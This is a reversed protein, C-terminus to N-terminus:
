FGKKTAIILLEYNKRKSVHPMHVYEMAQGSVNRKPDVAQVLAMLEDLSIVKDNYSLVWVPIHQSVDLLSTIADVSKTFPSPPLPTMHQGFLVSDLINLEKAYGVTNAYPPDFYAIDATVSPTLELVDKQYTQVTGLAPFVGGNIEEILKAADVLTPKLLRQFSGDKLRKQPLKHYEGSDLVQACGRNSTGISTGYAVYRSTLKWLLLRQLAQQVPCHTENIVGLLCDMTQAHRMSFVSNTLNGEVFGPCDKKLIALRQLKELQLKQNNNKILGELVIQGRDSIDNSIVSFGHMKAYLSVSGGGSFADYFVAESWKERAFKASLANFVWPLLARKGGTYSPLANLYNTKKMEFRWNAM